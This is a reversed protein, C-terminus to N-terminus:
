IAMPEFPYELYIELKFKSPIDPDCSVLHLIFDGFKKRSKEEMASGLSWAASFLIM